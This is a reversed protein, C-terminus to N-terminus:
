KTKKYLSALTDKKITYKYGKVWKNFASKSKKKGNIYYTTKKGTTKIVAKDTKTIKQGKITYYFKCTEFQASEESGGGYSWEIYAYTKKSKKNTAIGIATTTGQGADAGLQKGNILTKVKGKSASYLYLNHSTIGNAKSKNRYEVLFLEKTKNGDFDYLFAKSEGKAWKSSKISEKYRTAITKSYVGKAAEASLTFCSVLSILITVMLLISIIRKM